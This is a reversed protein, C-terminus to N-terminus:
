FPIEDDEAPPLAQVKTAPRPQSPRSPRPQSDGRSYEKPDYALMQKVILQPQRRKGDRGEWEYVDYRGHVEVWSGQSFDSQALSEALEGWMVLDIWITRFESKGKGMPVSHALGAQARPIGNKTYQLQIGDKGLRGSLKIENM